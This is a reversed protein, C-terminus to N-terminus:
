GPYCTILYLRQGHPKIVVRFELGAPTMGELIFNGNAAEFPQDTTSEPLERVCPLLRYRRVKHQRNFKPDTHKRFWHILVPRDFSQVEVGPPSTATDEKWQKLFRYSRGLVASDPGGFPQKPCQYMSPDYRFALIRETKFFLSARM